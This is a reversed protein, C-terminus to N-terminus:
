WEQSTRLPQEGPPILKFSVYVKPDGPEPDVNSHLRQYETANILKGGDVFVPEVESGPESSSYYYIKVLAFAVVPYTARDIVTRKRTEADLEEQTVQVQWGPAASTISLIENAFREPM